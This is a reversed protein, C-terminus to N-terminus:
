YLGGTDRTRNLGKLSVRQSPEAVLDKWSSMQRALEVVVNTGFIVSGFTENQKSEAQYEKEEFYQFLCFCVAIRALGGTLLITGFIIYIHLIFGMFM